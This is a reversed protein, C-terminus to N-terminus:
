PNLHHLTSLAAVANLVDPFHDHRGRYHRLIEWKKLAANGHEVVIRVQSIARNVLRESPDLDRGKPKRKPTFARRSHLGLRDAIGQYGKDAVVPVATAALLPALASGALAVLDHTAGPVVGGVWLLDGRHDVAAQFNLCHYGRHSNYLPKQADWGGPRPVRTSSGDIVAMGVIDADPGDLAFSGDVLGARQVGSLAALEGALTDEDGIVGGAPRRVGLAGLHPVMERYSRQVTDKGVGFMGAEKRYPLGWRLHVLALLLRSVAPISPRGAGRARVRPKTRDRELRAEREAWWSPCVEAVLWGFERVGLGTLLRLQAESLVRPNM